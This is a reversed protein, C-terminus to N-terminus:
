GLNAFKIYKRFIKNNKVTWGLFSSIISEKWILVQKKHYGKNPDLFYGKDLSM